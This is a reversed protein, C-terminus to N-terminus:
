RSGKLLCPVDLPHPIHQSIRGHRSVQEMNRHLQHDPHVTVRYVSSFAGLKPTAGDKTFPLIYDYLLSHDYKDCSFVPALLRWQNEYFNRIKVTTWIKPHFITVSPKTDTIPLSANTFTHDRFLSLAIVLHIADIECLLVIVFIRHANNFTWAALEERYDLGYGLDEYRRKKADPQKELESDFKHLENAIATQPLLEALCKEPLFERAPDHFNSSFYSDLIRNVLTQSDSNEEDDSDDWGAM